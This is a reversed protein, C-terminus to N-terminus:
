RLHRLLDALMERKVAGERILRPRPGNLDLVTSPESKSVLRDFLVSEEKPISICGSLLLLPVTNDIQRMRAAVDNGNMSPMSYDLVVADAIGSSFIKM